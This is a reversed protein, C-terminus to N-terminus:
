RKCSINAQSRFTPVQNTANWCTGMRSKAFQCDSCQCGSEDIWVFSHLPLAMMVENVFNARCVSCRQQAFTQVRKRSWNLRSLTRCITSPHVTFGSIEDLRRCIEGLYLTPEREMTTLLYVVSLDDLSRETRQHEWPQQCVDGSESFINFWRRVTTSYIGYRRAADM